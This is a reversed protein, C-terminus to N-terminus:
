VLRRIIEAGESDALAVSHKKHEPAAVVEPDAQHSEVLDTRDGTLRGIHERGLIVHVAAILAFYLKRKDGIEAIRGGM